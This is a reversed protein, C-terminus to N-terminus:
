DDVVGVILKNAVHLLADEAGPHLRDTARMNEQFSVERLETLIADDLVLGGLERLFREERPM